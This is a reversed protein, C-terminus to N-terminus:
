SVICLKTLMLGSPYLTGARRRIVSQLENIKKIDVTIKRSLDDEHGMLTLWVAQSRKEFREYAVRNRAEDDDRLDRELGKKYEVFGSM